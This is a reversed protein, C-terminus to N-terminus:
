EAVCVCLLETSSFWLSDLDMLSNLPKKLWPVFYMTNIILRHFFGMGTCFQLKFGSDVLLRALEDVTFHYHWGAEVEVDGFLGHPNHSFKKKYYENGHRAIVFIKHLWPFVFKFNGMDLFSFFHRGPVGLILFGDDSVVRRLEALIKSKDAIHELVGIMYVIKFISDSFPLAVGKKISKFILNATDVAQRNASEVDDVSLDIGVFSTNPFLSSLHILLDGRRSGYDLVNLCSAQDLLDTSIAYALGKPQLGFPSSLAKLKISRVSFM